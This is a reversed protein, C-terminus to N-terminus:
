LWDHAIAMGGLFWLYAAAVLVGLLLVHSSRPGEYARVAAILLPLGGLNLFGHIWGVLERSSSEVESTLVSILFVAAFYAGPSAALLKSGRSTNSSRVFYVVSVLILYLAALAGDVLVSLQYQTM